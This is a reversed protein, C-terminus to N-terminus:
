LQGALKVVQAAPDLLWEIDYGYDSKRALAMGANGCDVVATGYSGLTERLQEGIREKAIKRLRWLNLNDSVDNSNSM